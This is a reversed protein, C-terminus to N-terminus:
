HRLSRKLYTAVKLKNFHLNSIETEPIEYGFERLSSEGIRNFLAQHTASMEKKWAYCRDSKPLSDTNHHQSRRNKPILNKTDKHYALMDSSYDEGIFDCVKTLELRPNAILDEYRITHYRNKGLVRGVIQALKVHEHWWQAAGLMDNPGWPLKLVSNVVDRGDRVIHVFKANPFIDNILHMRDLYDSKDGWRVKNKARAYNRYVGDFVSGLTVPGPIDRIVEERDFKHDWGLLMEESFIDHLLSELNSRQELPGYSDVRQLYDTIFHSEYPIAINPHSNLMLRLLTTGSRGVGVIFFPETNL